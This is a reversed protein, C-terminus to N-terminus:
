DPMRKSPRRELMGILNDEDAHATKSGKKSSKAVGLDIVWRLCLLKELAIAYM